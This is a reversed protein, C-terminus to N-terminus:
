YVNDELKIGQLDFVVDRDYREKLERFLSELTSAVHPTVLIRERNLM